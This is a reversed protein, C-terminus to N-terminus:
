QRKKIIFIVDKGAGVVQKGEELVAKADELTFNGDATKEALVAAFDGVEDPVDGIEKVVTSAKDLGLGGLVDSVGHVGKAIKEALVSAKTAFTSVLGWAIGFLGLIGAAILAIIEITEM